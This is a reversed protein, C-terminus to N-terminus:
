YGSYRAKDKGQGREKLGALTVDSMGDSQQCGLGCLNQIRPFWLLRPGRTLGPVALFTCRLDNKINWFYYVIVYFQLNVASIVSWCPHVFTWTMLYHGCENQFTLSSLIIITFLDSVETHGELLYILLAKTVESSIPITKLGQLCPIQIM